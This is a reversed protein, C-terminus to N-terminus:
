SAFARKLADDGCATFRKSVAAEPAMADFGHFAGPAVHVETPVGARILRRAYELNEDAFMDLAATAICTPPLQSLDETRAPAALAPVHDAGPPL